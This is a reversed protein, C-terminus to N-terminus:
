APLVIFVLHLSQENVILPTSVLEYIVKCFQSKKSSKRHTLRRRGAGESEGLNPVFCPYKTSRHSLLPKGM